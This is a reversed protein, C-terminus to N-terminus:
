TDFRFPTARASDRREFAEAFALLREFPQVSLVQRFELHTVLCYLTTELYSLDREGLAGLVEDVHQHLWHLSGELSQRRKTTLASPTDSMILEIESAMAQLTLEQANALLPEQLQEPWLIHRGSVSARELERCINLAGYWDGRADRLVPLRLAPNGGYAAADLARLDPVVQLRCPVELELAFIRAVRTFHSSSRGFLTRETAMPGLM